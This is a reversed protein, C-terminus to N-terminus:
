RLPTVGSRRAAGRIAMPGQRLLPSWRQGGHSGCGDVAPRPVASRGPRSAVAEAARGRVVASLVRADRRRGAPPRRTAARLVRRPLCAAAAPRRRLPSPTRAPAAFRARPGARAPPRSRSAGSSRQWSVRREGALRDAQWATACSRTSGGHARLASLCTSGRAAGVYVLDSWCTARLRGAGSGSVALHADARLATRRRPTSGASRTRTTAAPPRCCASGRSVPPAHEWTTTSPPTARSRTFGAAAWRSSPPVPGRAPAEELPLRAEASRRPRPLRSRAAAFGLVRRRGRAVRYRARRRSSVV